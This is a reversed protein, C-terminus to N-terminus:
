IELLNILRKVEEIQMQSNKPAFILVKKFCNIAGHFDGIRQLAKGKNYWFIANTPDIELASDFYTISERHKRMKRLVLGINLHVSSYKPNLEISKMFCDIAKQYRDLDSLSAGKNNWSEADFPNLDLAKNFFVISEEFRGIRSLVIGKNNLTIISQPNIELAKDLDKLAKEHLGMNNYALGRNIFPFDWTDNYNIIKGYITIADNYREKRQLFLAHSFFEAVDDMKLKETSSSISWQGAWFSWSLADLSPRTLLIADKLATVEGANLRLAIAMLQIGGSLGLKRIYIKNSKSYQYEEERRLVEIQKGNHIETKKVQYNLLWFSLDPLREMKELASSVAVLENLGQLRLFSRHVKALDYFKKSVSESFIKGEPYQFYSLNEIKKGNIEVSLVETFVGVKLGEITCVGERISVSPLIPYFWFRALTSKNIDNKSLETLIDWLSKFDKIGSELLGMSIKKLEFDANFFDEGFNTEEIGGEFRVRQKEPNISGPDISVLPWKGYVFRARLAVVLDDLTLVARELSREGVLILDNNECDYVFGKIKTIGAITFIEPYIERYDYNEMTSVIIKQANKLSFAVYEEADIEITFLSIFLIIFFAILKITM